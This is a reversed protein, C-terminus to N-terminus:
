RPWRPWCGGQAIQIVVEQQHIALQVAFPFQQSEDMIRAVDVQIIIKDAVYAVGQLPNRCVVRGPGFWVQSKAREALREDSAFPRANGLLYEASPRRQQGEAWWREEEGAVITPGGLALFNRMGFSAVFLHSM